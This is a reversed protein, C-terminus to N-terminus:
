QLIRKQNGRMQGPEPLPAVVNDFHRKAEVILNDWDEKDKAVSMLCARMCTMLCQMVDALQWGDKRIRADFQVTVIEHAKKMVQMEITEESKSMVEGIVNLFKSFDPISNRMQRYWKWGDVVRQKHFRAVFRPNGNLAACREMPRAGCTMCSVQGARIDSEMGWGGSRPLKKARKCGSFHKTASGKPLAGCCKMRKAVNDTAM